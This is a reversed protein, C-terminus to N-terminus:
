DGASAHLSDVMQKFKARAQDDLGTSDSKAKTTLEQTRSYIEALTKLLIRLVPESIGAQGAPSNNVQATKAQLKELTARMDDLETKVTQIQEAHFGKEALNTFYTRLPLGREAAGERIARELGLPFQVNIRNEM